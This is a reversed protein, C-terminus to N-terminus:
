RKLPECDKPFPSVDLLSKELIDIYGSKEGVLVFWPAHLDYYQPLSGLRINPKVSFIMFVTGVEVDKVAKHSEDRYDPYFKM